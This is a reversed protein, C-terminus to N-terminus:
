VSFNGLWIRGDYEAVVDGLEQFEKQYKTKIDEVVEEMRRLEVPLNAPSSMDRRFVPSERLVGDLVWQYYLHDWKFEKSFGYRLDRELHMKAIDKRTQTIIADMDMGKFVHGTRPLRDIEASMEHYLNGYLNVRTAIKEVQRQQPAKQKRIRFPKGNFSTNMRRIIIVDPKIILDIFMVKKGDVMKWIKLSSGSYRMDWVDQSDILLEKDNILYVANDNQLAALISLRLSGSSTNISTLCHEDSFRFLSAKEGDAIFNGGIFFSYGTKRKLHLKHRLITPQEPTAKYDYLEQKSYISGGEAHIHQHCMACIPILYREDNSFRKSWEEIHHFVIPINGCISCAFNSHRALEWRRDIGIHGRARRSCTSHKMSTM